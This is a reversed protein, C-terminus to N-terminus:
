SSSLLHEASLLRGFIAWKEMFFLSSKFTSRLDYGQFGFGVVCMKKMEELDALFRKRGKPPASPAPPPEDFVNFDDLDMEYDLDIVEDDSM